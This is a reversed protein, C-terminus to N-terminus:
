PATEGGQDTFRKTPIGAKQAMAACGSAGSSRNRIFAAAREAGLAVMKANRYMGAAPCYDAGGKGRRRHGPKCDPGCPGEWDADHGEEYAGPVVQGYLKAVQDGGPANGHVILLTRGKRRAEDHCQGLAMWIERPHLWDRSATVLVRYPEGM